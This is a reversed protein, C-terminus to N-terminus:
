ICTRAIRLYIDNPNDPNPNQQDNRPIDFGILVHLMSYMCVPYPIRM